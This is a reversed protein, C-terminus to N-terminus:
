MRMTDQLQALLVSVGLNKLKHTTKTVHTDQNYMDNYCACVITYSPVQEDGKMRSLTFISIDTWCVSLEQKLLAFEDPYKSELPLKLFIYKATRKKGIRKCLKNVFEFVHSDVENTRPNTWPPDMFIIDQPIYLIGNRALCNKKVFVTQKERQGPYNQVNQKLFHFRNADIEYAMVHKFTVSFSYTNGGLCAFADAITLQKFDDVGHETCYEQMLHITKTADEETNMYKFEEHQIQEPPVHPFLRRLNNKDHLTQVSMDFVHM